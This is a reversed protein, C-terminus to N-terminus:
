SRRGGPVQVTPPVPTAPEAEAALAMAAAKQYLARVSTVCFGYNGGLVSQDLFSKPGQLSEASSAEAIEVAALSLGLEFCALGLSWNRGRM